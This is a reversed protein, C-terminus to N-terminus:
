LALALIKIIDAMQHIVVLVHSQSSHWLAFYFVADMLWGHTAQCHHLSPMQIWLQVTAITSDM